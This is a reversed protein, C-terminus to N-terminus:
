TRARTRCRRTSTPGSSSCSSSASRRPSSAGSTSSTSCRRRAASSASTTSSSAATNTDIKLVNANGEKFVLASAENEDLKVVTNQASLDVNANEIKFTDSASLVSVKTTGQGDKILIDGDTGTGDKAGAQLM